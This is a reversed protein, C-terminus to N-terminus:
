YWLGDWSIVVVEGDGESATTGADGVPWSAANAVNTSSCRCLISASKVNAPVLGDEGDRM